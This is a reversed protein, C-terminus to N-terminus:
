GAHHGAMYEQPHSRGEVAILRSPPSPGRPSAYLMKNGALPHMGSASSIHNFPSRSSNRDWERHLLKDVIGTEANPTESDVAVVQYTCSHRVRKRGIDCTEATRSLEDVLWERLAFATDRRRM